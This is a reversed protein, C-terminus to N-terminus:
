KFNHRDKSRMVQSAGSVEPSWIIQAFVSNWCKHAYTIHIITDINYRGGNLNTLHSLPM